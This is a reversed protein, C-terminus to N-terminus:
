GTNEFLELYVNWIIPNYLQTHATMSVPPCGYEFSDFIIATFMTLVCQRELQLIIANIAMDGPEKNEKNSSCIFEM